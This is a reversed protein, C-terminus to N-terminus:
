LHLEKKYQNKLWKSYEIPNKFEHLVRDHVRLMDAGDPVSLLQSWIVHGLKSKSFKDKTYNIKKRDCCIKFLKEAIYSRLNIAPM